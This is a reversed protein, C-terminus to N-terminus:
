IRFARDHLEPDVPPLTPRLTNAWGRKAALTIVAEIAEKEAFKAGPATVPRKKIGDAIVPQPVGAALEDRGGRAYVAGATLPRMAAAARQHPRKRCSRRLVQPCSDPRPLRRTAVAFAAAVMGPSSPKHPHPSPQSHPANGHETDWGKPAGDDWEAGPAIAAQRGAPSGDPPFFKGATHEFYSNRRTHTVGMKDLGPVSSALWAETAARSERENGLLRLQEKMLLSTLVDLQSGMELSPLLGCQRMAAELHMKNHVGFEALAKVAAFRVSEVPDALLRIFEAMIEINKIGYQAINACLEGRVQWNEDVLHGLQPRVLVAMPDLFDKSFTKFLFLLARSAEVKELWLGSDLLQVLAAVISQLTNMGRPCPFWFARMMNRLEAPVDSDGGLERVAILNWSFAAARAEDARQSSLFSPLPPTPTRPPPPARDDIDPVAELPPPEAVAVPVPEPPAPPEPEIEAPPPTVSKPPPPIPPPPQPSPTALPVISRPVIPPPKFKSFDPMAKPKPPQYAPLVRAESVMVHPHSVKPIQPRKAPSPPPPVAVPIAPPPLILPPPKAAKPKTKKVPKKKAKRRPRAVEIEAFMPPSPPPPMDEEKPPSPQSPKEVELEVEELAEVVPVGSTVVKPEEKVVKGRARSTPVIYKVPPPPPPHVPPHVMKFASPKSPAVEQTVASNPLTVGQSQLNRRVEKRRAELEEKTLQPEEPKKPPQMISSTPRRSAPKIYINKKPKKPVYKPLISKPLPIEVEIEEESPSKVRLHPLMLEESKLQDVVVYDEGGAGGVDELVNVFRDRIQSLLLNHQRTYNFVHQERALFLRRNRRLITEKHLDELDGRRKWVTEGGRSLKAPMQRLNRRVHWYGVEGRERLNKELVGEWFDVSSDFPLSEEKVDDAFTRTLAARLLHQPLYDQMRVLSIQDGIGIFIDGRENGFCLTRVTETFQMERVLGAEDWVRVARDVAAAWLGWAECWAVARVHGSNVSEDEDRKGATSLTADTDYRCGKISGRAPVGILVRAPALATAPLPAGDTTITTLHILSPVRTSRVTSTPDVPPAFFWTKITFDEGGSVLWLRKPDFRVFVVKATHAQASGELKGNENVWGIGGSEMGVGLYFRRLYQATVDQQGSMPVHNYIDIATLATITDHPVVEEWVHKLIGPNIGNAVNWVGIEGSSLIGYVTGYELDGVADRLAVDKYVPFCTTLTSGTVPSFIRISGDSLSTIARAPYSPHHLIAVSQPNASLGVFCGGVRSLTWAGVDKKGWVGIADAGVWMMGKVDVQANVKYTQKGRDLDWMRISGDLSGSMVTPANPYPILLATVANTHRFSYIPLSSVLFACKSEGDKSGSILYGLRKHFALCTVSMEHVNKLAELRDGTAWDYVYVSSDVAAYCREGTADYLIYSVWEEDALDSIKRIARPTPTDRGLVTSNEIKWFTVSGVEGTVLENREPIWDLFLVPKGVSVICQEEFKPDLVRLCMDGSAVVIWGGIAKWGVVGKAVWTGTIRRGRGRCWIGVGVEDCVAWIEQTPAFNFPSIGSPVHLVHKVSQLTPISYQHQLGHPITLSERIPPAAAKRQVHLDGSGPEGEGGSNSHRVHSGDPPPARVGLLSAIERRVKAWSWTGTGDDDGSAERHLHRNKQRSFDSQTTAGPRKRRSHSAETQDIDEDDNDNDAFLPIRDIFLRGLSGPADNAGAAYSSPAM